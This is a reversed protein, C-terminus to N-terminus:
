KEQRLFNELKQLKSRYSTDLVEDGVEIRMGGLLEEKEFFESIVIPAKYKEKIENEIKKRERSEMNKATTIKVRVTGTKKDFINQLAKLIENSKGLIRKDHLMRAGRHLTLALLTGSKGETAEYIAEAVNKPFIKSM